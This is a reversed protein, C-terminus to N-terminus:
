QRMPNCIGSTKSSGIDNKDFDFNKGDKALFGAILVTENDSTMRLHGVIRSDKIYRTIGLELRINEFHCVEETSLFTANEKSVNNVFSKHSRYEESRKCGELEYPLNPIDKLSDPVGNRGIYHSIAREMSQMVGVDSWNPGCFFFRLMIILALIIFPTAIIWGLMKM